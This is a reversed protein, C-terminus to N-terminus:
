DRTSMFAWVVFGGVFGAALLALVSKPILAVAGLGVMFVVPVVFTLAAALLFALGKHRSFWDDKEPPVPPLDYM